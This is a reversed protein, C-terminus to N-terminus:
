AMVVAVFNVQRVTTVPVETESGAAVSHKDSDKKSDSRESQLQEAGAVKRFVNLKQLVGDEYVAVEDPRLNGIPRQHKDRVVLDVLVERRTSRIIDSSPAVELQSATQASMLSFTALSLLLVGIAKRVSM